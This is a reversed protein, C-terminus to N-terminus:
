NWKQTSFWYSFHLIIKGPFGVPGPAGPLGLRNAFLIWGFHIIKITFRVKETCISWGQHGKDGKQGDKGDIGDKGSEGRPGNEGRVGSSNWVIDDIIWTFFKLKWFISLYVRYYGQLGQDGKAGPM